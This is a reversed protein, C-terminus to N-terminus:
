APLVGRSGGTVAAGNRSSPPGFLQGPNLHTAQVTRRTRRHFYIAPDEVHGHLLTAVRQRDGAEVAALIEEHAQLGAQRLAPDPSENTDAVRRTWAVEQTSWLAQLSSVILILTENGCGAVLEEHFARSLPEFVSPEAEIAEASRRHAARLRPVVTRLRDPRTACLSGCVILMEGHADSLDNLKVGGSELVLGLLYAANEPKPRHVVAGGSRGRRVTVLGENELIRLAERISPPSVGFEEALRDVTPLEADDGMDGSVIRQRLVGSVMEALRPQRM